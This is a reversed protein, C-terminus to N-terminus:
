EMPRLNKAKDIFLIGELHDIEHQLVRALLGDARIEVKEGQRNLAKVGVKEARTVEGIIDPVSLCGEVDIASGEAQIIEPNVLQYLDEEIKIVIVRKSVGIQPAALGVGIATACLTDRLNDLLKEIQPTIKEVKKAQQRLIVDPIKVIQYVAM